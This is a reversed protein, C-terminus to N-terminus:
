VAPWWWGALAIPSRIATLVFVPQDGGEAVAAFWIEGRQVTAGILGRRVTLGTGLLDGSMSTRWPSSTLPSCNPGYANADAEGALRAIHQVLADRLLESREVDLREAWRDAKAIDEEDARFSVTV